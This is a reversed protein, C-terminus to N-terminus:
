GHGGPGATRAADYRALDVVPVVGQTRLRPLSVIGAVMTDGCSRATRWESWDLQDVSGVAFGLIEDRAGTLLVRTRDTGATPGHGLRQGLDILPVTAGDQRFVGRV